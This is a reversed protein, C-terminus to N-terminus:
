TPHTGDATTATQPPHRGLPTDVQPPPHHPTQGPTTQGSSQRGLPTYVGQSCFEQCVSTFVNGKGLKM